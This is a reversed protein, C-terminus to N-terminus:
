EETPLLTVKISEIRRPNVKLVKFCFSPTRIEQNKLPMRGLRELLLGALSESEGKLEDFTETELQVIRAVDYLLTKGEFIFNHEDIQEYIVDPEDDFEDQIEGIVQELVDELTVLGETGGYEDVVIALHLRELHFDRLLDNIKKSEPVFLVNNRILAQWTFQPQENLHMLLDKAYLLGVINDNEPGYVPYRSYGSERITSLVEKFDAQESIAVIDVRARMIQRVSVEPFRVINRLIDLEQSTSNEETVTLEIAEGIEEKSTMGVATQQDHLRREVRTTWNVLLQSAPSFLQLLFSLPASMFRALRIGNITAYVKPTVEGFLVLLFTIGVVTISYYILNAIFAADYRLLWHWAAQWSGAWGLVTQSTLLQRFILEGLLVIAINIFNNSILITALLKDPQSLLWLIRRSSPKDDQELREGDNPSFSFYAVESGSVLASGVLLSLLALLSLSLQWTFSALM